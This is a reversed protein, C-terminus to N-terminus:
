NHTRTEAPPLSPPPLLGILPDKTRNGCHDELKESDEQYLIRLSGHDNETGTLEVQGKIQRNILSEIFCILLQGETHGM